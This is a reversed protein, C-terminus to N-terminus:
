GKSNPITPITNRCTYLSIRMFSNVANREPRVIAIVIETETETADEITGIAGANIRITGAEVGADVTTVAGTTTEVEEATMVVGAVGADVTTVAGTTTEVEITVVETMVAETMVAETMVVETMVVETMVVETMVVETMVVETMVVETMVVETMVAETMVAETMVAETMVAGTMVAETMVAGTTGNETTGNETTGAEEAIMEDVTVADVVVIGGSLIVTEPKTGAMLRTGVARAPNTTMVTGAPIVIRTEGIRHVVNIAPTAVVIVTQIQDATKRPTPDPNTAIEKEERSARRVGGTTEPPLM